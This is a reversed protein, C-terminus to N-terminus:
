TCLLKQSQDIGIILGKANFNLALMQGESLGLREETNEPVLINLVEKSINVLEDDCTILQLINDNNQTNSLVRVITQHHIDLNIKNKVYEAYARNYSVRNSENTRALVLNESEMVHLQVTQYDIINSPNNALAAGRDLIQFGIVYVAIVLASCLTAVQVYPGLDVHWWAKKPVTAADLMHAKIEVPSPHQRKRQQYKARLEDDSIKNSM